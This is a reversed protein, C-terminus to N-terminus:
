DDSARLTLATLNLTGSSFKYFISIRNKPGQMQYGRRLPQDITVENKIGNMRQKVTM